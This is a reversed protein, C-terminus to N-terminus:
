RHTRDLQQLSRDLDLPYLRSNYRLGHHDVLRIHPNRINQPAGRRVRASRRWHVIRSGM